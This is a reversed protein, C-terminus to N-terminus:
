LKRNKNRKEYRKKIVKYRYDTFVDLVDLEVIVFYVICLPVSALLLVTWYNTSVFLPLPKILSWISFVVSLIAGTTIVSLLYMELLTFTHILLLMFKRFMKNLNLM